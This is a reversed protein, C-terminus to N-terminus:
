GKKLENLEAPTLRKYEGKPLDEPLILTGMSIRKLYLVKNGVAEAMRKIQHFRGERITIKIERGEPSLPVVEAPLTPKEDGIDVGSRLREEDEATLCHELRVYYTKDVHKAPSLLRHALMGDNTILLLGESDRDLRGVPFLGKEKEPLLEMVTPLKSDETACIYGAPKHLLYYAYKEQQEVPTQDLCVEDKGPEIKRDPSKEIMSNVTIRGKRILLKVESRTGAGADALYKDLRIM